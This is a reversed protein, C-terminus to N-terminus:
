EMQCPMDPLYYLSSVNSDTPSRLCTGGGGGWGGGGGGGGGGGTDGGGGTGDLSGTGGVPTGYSCTFNLPVSSTANYLTWSKTVGSWKAITLSFKKKIFLLKIKIFAKLKGSLTNVTFDSKLNWDMTSCGTSVLQATVPLSAGILTLSGEVGLSAVSIGVAASAAVYVNGKPTAILKAVTPALSGTVKIGANGNLSATVTVPVFMIPFSKSASKFTRNFLQDEYLTGSLLDKSYIQAGMVYVKVNAGVFANQQATGSARARLLETQGSGFVKGWVKGEAVADLKAGASATAPLGNLSADIVYGAGFTSNGFSDDKHFAKSFPQDGPSSANPDVQVGPPETALDADPTQGEDNFVHLDPDGSEMGTTCVGICDQYLAQNMENNIQVVTYPDGYVSSGDDMVIEREYAIRAQAPGSLGLSAMTGILAVKPSLRSM